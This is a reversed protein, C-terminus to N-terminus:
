LWRWILLSSQTETPNTLLNITFHSYLPKTLHLSYRPRAKILYDIFQM